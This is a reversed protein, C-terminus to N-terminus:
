DKSIRTWDFLLVLVKLEGFNERWYFIDRKKFIDLYVGSFLSTQSAGHYGLLGTKKELTFNLSVYRCINKLTNVIM